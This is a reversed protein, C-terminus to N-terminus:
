YANSRYGGQWLSTYRSEHLFFADELPTVNSLAPLRHVALWAALLGSRGAKVIGENPDLRCRRPMRQVNVVTHVDAALMAVM